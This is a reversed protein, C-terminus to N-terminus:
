KPDPRVLEGVREIPLTTQEADDRLSKITLTGDALESEGLVLAYRAGSKDARKFQAKFSGGGLNTEVVLGDVEDRLREAVQLVRKGPADGVAVLYVDPVKPAPAINLEELLLVLRDVGMAFGLGPTPKGGQAQVLGDYRGGACVTGQAGLQDTVWEFVTRSYYDLGRVLRPNVIFDVGAGHVRDQVAAFHEASEADLADVITPANRILHQMSLAKSDLIRLPNQELRRESDEDLEQRHDAFYEVLTSRYAARSEATGLSNVELRLGTIGLRKWLRALMLIQEADVDPGPLGFVEAGVQYFQRYRGRQQREHRFMPGSYWIKRAHQAALNHAIVSRVVGATGEPRLSLKGGELHYMEKSVVDTSEGIAGTFLRTHEVLPLRLERYGYDDLLRTACGEVWHWNSIQDPLIDPMGTVSRVRSM